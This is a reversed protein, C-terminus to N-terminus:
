FGFLRHMWCRVSRPLWLMCFAIRGLLREALLFFNKSREADTRLGAAFFGASVRGLLFGGCDAAAGAAGATGLAISLVSSGGAGVDSAGAAAASVESGLALGLALRFADISAKRL